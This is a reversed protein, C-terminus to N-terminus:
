TERKGYYWKNFTAMGDPLRAMYRALEDEELCAKSGPRVIYAAEAHGAVNVHEELVSAKEMCIASKAWVEELAPDEDDEEDYGEEEMYEKGLKRIKANKRMILRVLRSREVSYAALCISTVHSKM